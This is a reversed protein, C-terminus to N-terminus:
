AISLDNCVDSLLSFNFLVQKQWTIEFHKMGACDTVSGVQLIQPSIVLIRIYLNPIEEIIQHEICVGLYEIWNTGYRLLSPHKTM